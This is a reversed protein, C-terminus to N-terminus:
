VMIAQRVEEAAQEGCLRRVLSLGFELATGAGRSTILLGDEVVADKRRAGPLENETSFHATFRRGVLLGADSLILPAACIAAVPKGARVFEAALRAPRGDARLQKVGPGGPLFLLGYQAPDIRALSGEVQVTVGCRGTVLLSGDLSALMVTAGARRLLDVPAILEIEEFGPGVIVLVSMTMFLRESRLM